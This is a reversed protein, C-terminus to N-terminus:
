ALLAYLDALSVDGDFGEHGEIGHEAVWASAEEAPFHPFEVLAGCRGSRIIAAGFNIEPVNTSILVMVRLGSGILGDAVNLLRSVGQGVREKANADIFEDGDEIVILRWRDAESQGDLLVTNLYLATGFMEEPDVIFHFDCWGSWSDALSQLFRTKGTGPPGHFVMLRGGVPPATHAALNAAADRVVAPYNSAIEAFPLRPVARLRSVAGAMPHAMWFEMDVTNDQLRKRQPVLAAIAAAAADATAADAAAVDIDWEDYGSNFELLVSAPGSQTEVSIVGCSGRGNNRDRHFAIGMGEVREVSAALEAWTMTSDIHFSRVEQASEVTGLWRSFALARSTLQDSLVVSPATM